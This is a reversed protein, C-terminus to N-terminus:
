YACITMTALLTLQGRVPPPLHTEAKQEIRAWVERDGECYWRVSYGASLPHVPINELDPRVMRILPLHPEPM